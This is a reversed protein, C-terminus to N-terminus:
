LTLKGTMVTDGQQEVHKHVFIPMERKYCWTEVKDPCVAAHNNCLMVIGKMRLRKLDFILADRVESDLNDYVNWIESLSAVDDKSKECTM